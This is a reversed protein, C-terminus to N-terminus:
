WASMNKYKHSLTVAKDWSEKTIPPVNTGSFNTYNKRVSKSYKHGIKKQHINLKAMTSIYSM